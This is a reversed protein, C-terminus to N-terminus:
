TIPVTSSASSLFIFLIYGMELSIMIEVVQYNYYFTSVMMLHKSGCMSSTSIEPIQSLNPCNGSGSVARDEGM